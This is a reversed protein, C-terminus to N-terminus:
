DTIEEFAVAGIFKTDFEYDNMDQIRCEVIVQAPTKGDFMDGPVAPNTIMSLSGAYYTQIPTRQVVLNLGLSEYNDSTIELILDDEATYLRVSWDAVKGSIQNNSSISTQLYFLTLGAGNDRSARSTIYDIYYEGSMLKCGQFTFLIAGLILIIIGIRKTM